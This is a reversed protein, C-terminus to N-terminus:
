CLLEPIATSASFMFCADPFMSIRFEDQLCERVLLEDTPQSVAPVQLPVAPATENQCARLSGLQGAAM